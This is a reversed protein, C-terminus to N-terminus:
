PAEQRAHAARSFPYAVECLPASARPPGSLWVREAFAREDPGSVVGYIATTGPNGM